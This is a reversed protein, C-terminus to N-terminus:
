YLVLQMNKKRSCNHILITDLRIGSELVLDLTIVSRPIQLCDWQVWVILVFFFMFGNGCFCRLYMLWLGIFSCWGVEEIESKPGAATVQHVHIQDRLQSM